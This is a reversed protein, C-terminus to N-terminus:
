CLGDTDIGDISGDGDLDIGRVSFDRTLKTLDIDEEV